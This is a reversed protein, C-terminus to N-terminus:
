IEDQAGRIWIWSTFCKIYKINFIRSERYECILDQFEMIKFFVKCYFIIWPLTNPGIWHASTHLKCWVIMKKLTQWSHWGGGYGGTFIKRNKIKECHTRSPTFIVPWFHFIWLPPSITSLSQFFRYYISGHLILSHVPMLM